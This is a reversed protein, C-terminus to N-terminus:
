RDEEDPQTQGALSGVMKLATEMVSPDISMGGNQPVAQQRRQEAVRARAAAPDLLAEIEAIAADLAALQRQADGIFRERNESLKGLRLRLRDELPLDANYEDGDLPDAQVPPQAVM